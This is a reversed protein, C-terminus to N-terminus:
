LKTAGRLLTGSYFTQRTLCPASSCFPSNPQLLKGSITSVRLVLYGQTCAYTLVIAGAKRSSATVHGRPEPERGLAAGPGGCTVQAGAGVKHRLAAGSSGRTGLVPEVPQLYIFLYGRTVRDDHDGDPRTRM